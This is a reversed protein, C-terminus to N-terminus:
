PYCSGHRKRFTRPNQAGGMSFIGRRSQVAQSQELAYPGASRRFRYSWAYGNVVMWRGVDEGQWTVSALARGYSDHQKFSVTVLQGLVRQKLADRAEGGGAQCIEPADIGSIRVKLPHGALGTKVWVTDGDVVRTVVGSQIHIAPTANAQGFYLFGTFPALVLSCVFRILVARRRISTAIIEIALQARGHKNNIM